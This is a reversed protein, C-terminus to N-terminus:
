PTSETNNSESLSLEVEIKIEDYPVVPRKARGAEELEVIGYEELLHVDDHVESPNRGLSEALARMSEPPSEMVSRILELRKPTLIRQIVTPDEFNLVRPVDGRLREGTPEGRRVDALMREKFSSWPKTQILLHRRGDGDNLQDPQTM